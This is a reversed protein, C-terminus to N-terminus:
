VVSQLSRRTRIKQNGPLSGHVREVVLDVVEGGVPELGERRAAEDSGSRDLTARDLLQGRLIEVAVRLSVEEGPDATPRVRKPEGSPRVIEGHPGTRTGTLRERDCALSLPFIVSSMNPGMPEPENALTARLKDKPLLNRTRVSELPEVSNRSVQFSLTVGDPRRIEASRANARGVNALTEVEDGVSGARMTDHGVGHTGLPPRETEVSLISAAPFVISPLFCALLRSCATLNAARWGNADAM